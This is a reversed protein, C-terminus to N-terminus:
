WLVGVVALDAEAGWPWCAHRMEGKQARGRLSWWHAAILVSAVASNALVQVHTRPTPDGSGGTSSHTLKAKVGHKVKTVATGTLFFVALLALFIPWPHLAHITATLAAVLLGLPTHSNNSRARLVLLIILPAAFLPHM